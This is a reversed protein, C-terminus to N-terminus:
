IWRSYKNVKVSTISGTVTLNNNGQKFDIKDYDGTVLRNLLTGDLGYANMKELDIIITQSTDGLALALINYNNLKVTVNGSGTFTLNPKSNKNGSNFM